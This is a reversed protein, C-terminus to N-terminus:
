AEDSQILGDGLGVERGTKGSVDASVDQPLERLTAPDVLVDGTASEGTWVEDGVLPMSAARMLAPAAEHQYLDVHADQETGDSASIAREPQIIRDAGGFETAPVDHAAGTESLFEIPGVM